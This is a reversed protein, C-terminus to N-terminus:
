FTESSYIVPRHEDLQRENSLAELNSKSEMFYSDGESLTNLEDAGLCKVPPALKHGSWWEPLM